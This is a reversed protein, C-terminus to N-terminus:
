LCYRSLDKFNFTLDKTPSTKLDILIHKGIRMDSLMQKIEIDTSKKTTNKM